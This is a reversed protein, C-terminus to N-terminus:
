KRDCTVQSYFERRGRCGGSGEVVFFQQCDLLGFFPTFVDFFRDFRRLM